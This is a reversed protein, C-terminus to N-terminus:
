DVTSQPYDHHQMKTFLLFFTSVSCFVKEWTTEIQLKNFDCIEFKQSYLGWQIQVSISYQKESKWENNQGKITVSPESFSLVPPADPILIHKSNMSSAQLPSSSLIIM